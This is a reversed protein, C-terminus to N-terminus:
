CCWFFLCPVCRGRGSMKKQDSFRLNIAHKWCNIHIELRHCSTRRFWPILSKLGSSYYVRKVEFTAKLGCLSWSFNDFGLFMDVGNRVQRLWSVVHRGIPQFSILKEHKRVRGRELIQREWNHYMAWLVDKGVSGPSPTPLNRTDLDPRLGTHSPPYSHIVISM